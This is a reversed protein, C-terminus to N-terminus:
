FSAAMDLLTQRQYEELKKRDNFLDMDLNKEINVKILETLYQPPLSDLEWSSAGYEDIYSKFRKDTEKAPNPPPNLEEIQGMNLAIRQFDIKDSLGSLMELRRPIDKSMCLGSPDHDGVYLIVIDKGQECKWKYRQAALYMESDSAFGRCSFCPVQYEDCINTVINKVADKEMWCEVYVAQGDLLNLAYSRAADQIAESPSKFTILEWLGRTRDEIAYWDILGARRGDTVLTSLKGYENPTNPIIGRAVLQYYLQRLSLSYGIDQYEGIIANIQSIRDLSSKRFDKDIFKEKM